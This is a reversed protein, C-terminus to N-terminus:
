FLNGCRCIIISVIARRHSKSLLSSVTHNQFSDWLEKSKVADVVSSSNYYLWYDDKQMLDKVNEDRTKNFAEETEDIKDIIDDDEFTLESKAPVNIKSKADTKPSASTAEHVAPVAAAPTATTPAHASFLMSNPKAVTAGPISYDKRQGTGNVGLLLPATTVEDPLVKQNIKAAPSLTPAMSSNVMPAIQTDGDRKARYQVAYQNLAPLVDGDVGYSHYNDNDSLHFYFNHKPNTERNTM